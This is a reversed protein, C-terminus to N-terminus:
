ALFIRCKRKLHTIVFDVANVACSLMQPNLEYLYKARRGCWNCIFYFVYGRDQGLNSPIFDIKQSSWYYVGDTDKTSKFTNYKPTNLLEKMYRVDNFHRLDFVRGEMKRVNVIFASIYLSIDIRKIEDIFQKQDQHPYM